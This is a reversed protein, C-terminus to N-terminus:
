KLGGAMRLRRVYLVPTRVILAMAKESESGGERERAMMRTHTARRDRCSERGPSNRPSRAEYLEAPAHYLVGRSRPM